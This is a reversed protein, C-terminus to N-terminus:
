TDIRCEGSALPTVFNYFRTANTGTYTAERDKILRIANM